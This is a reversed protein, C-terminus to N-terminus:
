KRLAPEVILIGAALLAAILGSAAIARIAGTLRVAEDRNRRGAALAM